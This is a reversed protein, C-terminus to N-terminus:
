CFAKIRHSNVAMKMWEPKMLLIFPIFRIPIAFPDVKPIEGFCRNRKSVWRIALPENLAWASVESAAAVDNPMSLRFKSVDSPALPKLAHHSGVLQCLMLM